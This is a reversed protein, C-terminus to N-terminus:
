AVAGQDYLSRCVHLDGPEVLTYTWQSQSYFRADPLYVSIASTVMRFLEAAMAGATVADFGARVLVQTSAPVQDFSTDHTEMVQIEKVLEILYDCGDYELSTFKPAGYGPYRQMTRLVHERFSSRIYARAEELSILYFQLKDNTM